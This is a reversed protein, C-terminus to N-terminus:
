QTCEKSQLMGLSCRAKKQLIKAKDFHVSNYEPPRVNQYYQEFFIIYDKLYLSMNGGLYVTSLKKIRKLLGLGMLYNDRTAEVENYYSQDYARDPSPTILACSNVTIYSLWHHEMLQDITKKEFSMNQRSTEYRKLFRAEVVDLLKYTDYIRKEYAKYHWLSRDKNEVLAKKFWLISLLTDFANLEKQSMFKKIIPKIVHDIYIVSRLSDPIHVKNVETPLIAIAKDYAGIEQLTHYRLAYKQTKDDVGQKQYLWLATELHAKIIDITVSFLLPDNNIKEHNISLKKLRNEDFIMVKQTDCLINKHIHFENNYVYQSREENVEARNAKEVTRPQVGINRMIQKAKIAEAKHPMVFLTSLSICLIFIYLIGKNIYNM